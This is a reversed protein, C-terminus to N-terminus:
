NSTSSPLIVSSLASSATASLSLTTSPTTHMKLTPASKRSWWSISSSKSWPSCYWSAWSTGSCISIPLCEEEMTRSIRSLTGARGNVTKCSRLASAAPVALAKPIILEQNPVTITCTPSPSIQLGNLLTTSPIWQCQQQRINYFAM